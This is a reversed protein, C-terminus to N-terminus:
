FSHSHHLWHWHRPLYLVAGNSNVKTFDKRDRSNSEIDNNQGFSCSFLGFRASFPLLTSILFLILHSGLDLPLSEIMPQKWDTNSELVDIDSRLLAFLSLMPRALLLWFTNSFLCITTIIDGSCHCNLNPLSNASFLLYIVGCIDSISDLLLLLIELIAYVRSYM